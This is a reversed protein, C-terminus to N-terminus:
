GCSKETSVDEHKFSFATKPLAIIEFPSTVSETVSCDAAPAAHTISVTRVADQDAVASVSIAYGGTSHSGDFVAVVEQSGFDISPMAPGGGGYLMKWFDAFQDADKIRYNTRSFSQPANTGQTIVSFSVDQAASAPAAAQGTDSVVTAAHMPVYIYLVTGIVIAVVALGIVILIDRM